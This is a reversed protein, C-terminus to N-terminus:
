FKTYCFRCTGNLLFPTYNGCKCDLKICKCDLKICKCDLKICKCDLKICKCDLKICKSKICDTNFM